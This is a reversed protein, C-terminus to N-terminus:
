SAGVAWLPWEGPVGKLQHRGRDEFVLGSGAVLDKVTGSVLVEGAGALAGVRAGIHVAIGGIDDNPMVECEGTHLGARVDVGLPRVAERLQCACRIARGPGDFTALVGDGLSKVKRGRHRDIGRQIIRDHEDLLDRWRRDGLDAARQTSDVIDTFLVTALVRDSEASSVSGTLLEELEELVREAGDLTILHDAGEHEVYRAGPINAALYRGFRRPSVRDDRRQLVVTPVDITQLVHRVDIDRYMALLDLAGRPSSASRLFRGWWAVFSADGAMSPAFFDSGAGTGWSAELNHFFADLMEDPLGIEYGEAAPLRAYAGFLALADVRDPYTASFLMSLPGGESIGLLTASETGTADMVALLDDMGQELTAVAGPRDSLGQNRRDYAVVRAFSRLRESFRRNAPLDQFVELHSVFGPVVVLTGSSGGSVQYAISVDGSRAYQIEQEVRV